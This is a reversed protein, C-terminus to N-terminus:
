PGGVPVPERPLTHIGPPPPPPPVYNVQQVPPKPPVAVVAPTTPTVGKPHFTIQWETKDHVVTRRDVERGFAVEHSTTERTTVQGVVVEGEHDIVYGNPYKEDLMKLAQNHFYTSNSPMAITGGEPGVSVFRPSACGCAGLLALLVAARVSRLSM